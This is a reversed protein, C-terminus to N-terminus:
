IALAIPILSLNIAKVTIAKPVLKGSNTVLTEAVRFPSYSIAIPLTTPLLIKLIPITKPIGTETKPPTPLIM